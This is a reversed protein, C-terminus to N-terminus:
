KQCFSRKELSVFVIQVIQITMRTTTTTERWTQAMLLLTNKMKWFWAANRDTYFTLLNKAWIRQKRQRNRQTNLRKRVNLVLYPWKPYNGVFLWEPFMLSVVLDDNVSEKAIIPWDKWSIRELNKRTSTWFTPRGTKIKDEISEGNHFRNITNYITRRPYDEKQFHNVIESKKMQPIVIEVRKRLSERETKNLRM